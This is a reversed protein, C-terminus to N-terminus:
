HAQELQAITKLDPQSQKIPEQSIRSDKEFVREEHLTSSFQVKKEPSKPRVPIPKEVQKSESILSKEVSKKIPNENTVQPKSKVEEVIEPESPKEVTHNSTPKQTSHGNSEEVVKRVSSYSSLSKEVHVKKPQQSIEQEIKPSEEHIHEHSHTSAAISRESTKIHTVDHHIQDGSKINTEELM